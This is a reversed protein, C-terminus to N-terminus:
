FWKRTFLSFLTRPSLTVIFRIREPYNPQAIEWGNNSYVPFYLEFYDQVLNLRIGSDYVFRTSEQENRLLGLDAYAEVWRWISYGYNTTLMFDNAFPDDLVSKFGGEAIILQQSFIGSDESRGLYNFDFLYDTPRDLAYSFFDSNTDNHLFKGAFFRFTFQRNDQMLKRYNLTFSLKSFNQAAQGDINWNFWRIADSNSFTYRANLVSYDPDTDDPVNGSRAVNINRFTLVQIKNSRFDVPDRFRFRLFPTITYFRSNPAFHFTSGSIGYNISNLNQDQFFHTYALRGAGVMSKEKFSYAPRLDYLFNRSLLAKNNIRLGPAVGDYVNFDVTPVYFVQNYYPDETDKFFKFKFPKNNFFFGKLSKWNDRQNFEPIIKDYNLVLKDEGNNPIAITSINQISDLWYQNVLSDNKITSLTIPFRNREKNKLTVFLSDETKVVKKIRYDIRKRTTLYDKQFWDIDKKTNRELLSLFDRESVNELQFQEYFTKISFPMYTSDQVYSDLYKLGVGAKYRNAIKENFRVLSDSPTTLAQDNNRRAMYMAFFPYQENFEMQSFHYSRVGWVKSLNGALKMNPYYQDVYEMMLYTQIGDLVWREKRPDIALTNTLYQHSLSKLLSIDFQFEDPFPRIFSPLQNLGYVPNKRYSAESVLIKEHPYQGLREKLFQEIRDVVLITKLEPLKRDIIDTVLTGNDTRYRIFRERKLLHIQLDKRSKGELLAQQVGNFDTSSTVNLDSYLFYGKPFIFNIKYDAYALYLDDLDKNSYTKWGNQYNCYSLYWHRLLYEQSRTVGNKTFRANPLLIQYTANVQFSQGPYIPYLLQVRLIDPQEELRKWSLYDYNRDSLTIIETNGRQTDNALHLSRDFEEGFRKALPTNKNEFAYNWDNLYVQNLTDKSDNFFTM